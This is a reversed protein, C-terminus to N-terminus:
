RRNCDLCLMQSNEPRTKYGKSWPKIHDAEKLLEICEVPRFDGDGNLLTLANKWNKLLYEVDSLDITGDANKVETIEIKYLSRAETSKVELSGFDLLSLQEGACPFRYLM